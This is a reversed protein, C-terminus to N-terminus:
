LLPLGRAASHRHAARKRDSEQPPNGCVGSRYHSDTLYRFDICKVLQEPRMDVVLRWLPKEETKAWLDWAANIVAGTALHIAGKTPGIWRLQSDSTVHRWFQGMDAAIAALEQFGVV